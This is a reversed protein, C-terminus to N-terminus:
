GIVKLDPKPESSPSKTGHGPVSSLVLQFILARLEPLPWGLEAALDRKSVEEDRLSRFMKEFVGSMERACGEPESSRYGAQQIAIVLTRYHWESLLRVEHMRYALASVAVRWHRKADILDGLTAGRPAFALLSSRPM